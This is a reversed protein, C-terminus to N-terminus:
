RSSEPMEGGGVALRLGHRLLDEFADASIPPSFLYGQMENCKHKRLYALQAESEVGEAIVHLRLSQALGIITLVIAADDPDTTLDRVFTQDIKLTDIPFRKLYALSSYGTGFDDISLRVGLAKLEQLTSIAHEVDSILLSETLELDLYRAELGTEALIASTIEVLGRQTFQRASLNVAVCLKGLGARQWTMNQACATRMVWEGIQIILGTEEALAIFRDPPVLGLRPHQWRLLAEMGVVAGSVLDVQPQYQLAFENRDVANRLDEQLRLREIARENMAATYFQFNNRGTEKARYMAIDAREVLTEASNGDGPYVAIGVSCTPFFEHGHITVPVAIAEMIRQVVNSRETPENREALILVFEDGGIRAVTDTDRIAARLREAIMNLLFDGAKHGLSDNIFKFRDLDLFIVWFSLNHRAAFLITQQLRDRLLSRNALGTLADHTAQYHLQTELHKRESIDRLVVQMAPKGQYSLAIRTVAVDFVTGDIRVAQEESTASYASETLSQMAALADAESAPASLSLVPRSLLRGADNNLFLQHASHNAFVIAGDVAIVIADPSLEVLLRYREESERLAQLTNEHVSKLEDFHRQQEALWAESQLDGRLAREFEATTVQDPKHQM